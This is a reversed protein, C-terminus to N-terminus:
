HAKTNSLHKKSYCCAGIAFENQRKRICYDLFKLWCNPMVSKCKFSMRLKLLVQKIQIITTAKELGYKHNNPPTPFNYHTHVQKM